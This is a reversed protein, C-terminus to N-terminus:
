ESVVFDEADYPLYTNHIGSIPNQHSVITNETIFKTLKKLELM